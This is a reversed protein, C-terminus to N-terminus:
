YHIEFGVKDNNVRLHYIVFNIANEAHKKRINYCSRNTGDKCGCAAYAYKSKKIDPNVQMALLRLHWDPYDPLVDKWDCYNEEYRPGTIFQCFHSISEWAAGYEEYEVKELDVNDYGKIGKGKIGFLAGRRGAGSLGGHTELWMKSIIVEQDIDYTEEFKNMAISNYWYNIFEERNDYENQLGIVWNPSSATFSFLALLLTTIILIKKM